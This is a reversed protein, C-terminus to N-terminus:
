QRNVSFRRLGFGVLVLLLGGGLVLTLDFGTFPLNGSSSSITASAGLTGGAVVTKSASKVGSSLVCKGNVRVQNNKCAPSAPPTGPVGYQEQAPTRVAKVIPNPAAVRKVIRVTQHAASTAYAIGGFGALAGFMALTLVLAFIRSPAFLLRQRRATAEVRAAISDVLAEPAEPRAGRLMKEFQNRDRRHSRM